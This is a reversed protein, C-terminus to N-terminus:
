SHVVQLPHDLSAAFRFFEESGISSGTIAHPWESGPGSDPGPRGAWRRVAEAKEPGLIRGLRGSASPTDFVKEGRRDANLVSRLAHDWHTVSKELTYRSEFTELGHRCLSASLDPSSQLEILLQAAAECDGVPFLLANQRDVLAAEAGAGIYTSSVIPVSHAMAEWIVIPGTEWHSTILLADSHQYVMQPIEAASVHGLFTVRDLLGTTEVQERLLQEEPGNGAVLLKANIGHEFMQRLTPVLDHVRKQEQEVRGVYAVTFVRHDLTRPASSKNTGCPAYHVREEPVGGLQTALRCALRNTCAVGDVAQGLAKMDAFLDAQIGHCAILTRPRSALPLQAAAIIADPINVSVVVDPRCDHFAERLAVRRGVSTGTRCPICVVRPDPHIKLYDNPRHYRAGEVLGLVADWGSERLGPLVYDLWVALGGLLYASPSVFMVLPRSKAVVNLM